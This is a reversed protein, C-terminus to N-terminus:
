GPPPATPVSNFPAGHGSPLGGLQLAPVRLARTEALSRGLESSRISVEGM